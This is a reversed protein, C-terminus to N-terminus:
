RGIGGGGGGGSSGSSSSGCRWGGGGGGGGCGGSLGEAGGGSGDDVSCSHLFHAHKVPYSFCVLGQCTNPIIKETHPLHSTIFNVVM